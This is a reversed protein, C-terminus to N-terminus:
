HIAEFKNLNSSETTASCGFMAEPSSDNKSSSFLDFMMPLALAEAHRIREGLFLVAVCCAIRLAAHLFDKKLQKVRVVPDQVRKTRRKQLAATCALIQWVNDPYKHRQTCSPLTCKPPVSNRHYTTTHTTAAQSSTPNIQRTLLLFRPPKLSPISPM